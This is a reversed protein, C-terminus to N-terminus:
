VEATRGPVAGCPSAAGYAPYIGECKPITKGNLVNGIQSLKGM